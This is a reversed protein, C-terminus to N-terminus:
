PQDTEEKAHFRFFHDRREAIAQAYTRVQDIVGHEPCTIQEVREIDIDTVRPPTSMQIGPKGRQRTV